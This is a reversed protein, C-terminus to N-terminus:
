DVDQSIEIKSRKPVTPDADISERQRYSEGVTAAEGASLHSTLRRITIEDMEEVLAASQSDLDLHAYTPDNVFAGCRRDVIQAVSQAVNRIAINM